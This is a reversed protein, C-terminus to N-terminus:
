VNRDPLDKSELAPLRAGPETASTPFEKGPSLRMLNKHQSRTHARVIAVGAVVLVFALYPLARIPELSRWPGGFGPLAREFFHYGLVLLGIATVLVSQIRFHDLMQPSRHEKFFPHILVVDRPELFQREINTLIHLNRSFWTAADYFHALAWGCVFVVLTAALDLNLVRNEVLALAATATVVTAVSQWSVSIHRSINDWLRGYM